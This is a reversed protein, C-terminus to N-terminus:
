ASRRKRLSEGGFDRVVGGERIRDALRAEVLTRFKETSANSTIITRCSRAHRYSLVSDLWGVWAASAAGAGLDDVVLLKAERAHHARTAGDKGFVPSTQGERADLWVVREGAKLVELACWGAGVSKGVGLDGILALCWSDQLWWEQASLLPPLAEPAGLAEVVRDGAMKRLDGRSRAMAAGTQRQRETEQTLVALEALARLREEALEPHELDWVRQRERVEAVLSRVLADTYRALTPRAIEVLRAELQAVRESTM